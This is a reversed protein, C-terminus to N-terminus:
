ERFGTGDSKWNGSVSMPTQDPEYGQTETTHDKAALFGRAFERVLDLLVTDRGGTTLVHIVGDADEATYLDNLHEFSDMLAVILAEATTLSRTAAIRNTMEIMKRDSVEQAM